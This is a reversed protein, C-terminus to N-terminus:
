QKIFKLTSLDSKTRFRLFYTGVPLTAISLDKNNKSLFVTEGLNNLIEVNFQNHDTDITLTNRTPNPYVTVKSKVNPVSLGDGTTLNTTLLVMGWPNIEINRTVPSIIDTRYTPYPNTNIVQTTSDIRFGKLLAMDNVIGMAKDVYTLTVVSGTRNIFLVSKTGDAAKVPIMELQDSADNSDYMTGRLYPNSLQYLNAQASFYNTGIMGYSGGDDTNWNNLVNVGKLAMSKIFCATWAAGRFNHHMPEYPAWVYQVNFEDLIVELKTINKSKLYTSIGGVVTAQNRYAHTSASNIYGFLDDYSYPTTPAGRAYTHISIFDMNAKCNDIFGRYMSSSPYSLAPGGCKVGPDAAKMAVAIKNLVRWYGSSAGFDTYASEKENFFEYLDIKYGMQKIIVPFQAFFAAIQDEQTVTLPLKNELNTSIFSPCDDFTFMIRKAHKYTNLSNVFLRRIKVTDWQQTTTNVLSQVLGKNHIRVVGPQYVQFFNAMNTNVSTHGRGSDNTGWHDATLQGVSPSSWSINVAVPNIQADLVLSFLLGCILSINKRFNM